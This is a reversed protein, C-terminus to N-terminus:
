ATRRPRKGVLAYAGGLARNVLREATGSRVYRRVLLPSVLRGGHRRSVRLREPWFADNQAFTKAEGHLRQVSWV